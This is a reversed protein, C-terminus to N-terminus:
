QCYFESKLLLNLATMPEYIETIEEIINKLNQFGNFYKLQEETLDEDNKIIPSMIRVMKNKLEGDADVMESLKVLEMEVKRLKEDSAVYRGGIVELRGDKIFVFYKGLNHSSATTYIGDERFDIDELTVISKSVESMTKTIPTSVELMSAKPNPKEALELMADTWDWSNEEVKYVNWSESVSKITLTKGKLDAMSDNVYTHSYYKGYEISDKVIVKDGVKFKMGSEVKKEFMEDTWTYKYEELKYCNTGIVGKITVEKGRFPMMDDVVTYGGYRRDEILDKKVIVKDGVKYKSM